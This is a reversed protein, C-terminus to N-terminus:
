AVRSFPQSTVFKLQSTESTSHLLSTPQFSAVKSTGCAKHTRICNTYCNRLFRLRKPSSPRTPVISASRSNHDSETTNFLPKLLSISKLHIGKRRCYLAMICGDDADKGWIDVVVPNCRVGVLDPDKVRHEKAVEFARLVYACFVCGSKWSLKLDRLVTDFLIYVPPLDKCVSCDM